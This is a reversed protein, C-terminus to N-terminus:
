DEDPPSPNPGVLPPVLRSPPLSEGQEAANMADEFDTQRNTPNWGNLRGTSVGPRLPAQPEETHLPRPPTTFESM